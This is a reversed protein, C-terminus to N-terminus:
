ADLPVALTANTAKSTRRPQVPDIAALFRVLPSPLRELKRIRGVDARPEFVSGRQELLRADVSVLADDRFPSRGDVTAPLPVPRPDLHLVPVLALEHDATPRRRVSVVAPTQEDALVVVITGEAEATADLPADCRGIALLEFWAGAARDDRARRETIV